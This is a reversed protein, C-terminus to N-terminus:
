VVEAPRVTQSELFADLDRRWYYVKSGVKIYPIPFRQTCRWTNLTNETVGIYAATAKHTLREDQM